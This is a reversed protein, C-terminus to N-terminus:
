FVRLITDFSVEKRDKQSNLTNMLERTAPDLKLVTRDSKKVIPPDINAFSDYLPPSNKSEKGWRWTTALPGKPNFNLFADDNAGLKQGQAISKELKNKRAEAKSIAAAAEALIKEKGEKFKEEVAAAQQAIVQASQQQEEERHAEALLKSAAKKVDAEEKVEKKLRAAARAIKEEQSKELMQAAKKLVASSQLMPAAAPKSSALLLDSKSLQALAQTETPMQFLVDQSKAAHMTTSVVTAAVVCLAGVAVLVNRRARAGQTAM